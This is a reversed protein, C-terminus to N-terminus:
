LRKRLYLHMTAISKADVVDGADIRELSHRVLLRGGRLFYYFLGLGLVALIPLLAASLWTALPARLGEYYIARDTLVLEQLKGNAFAKLREIVKEDSSITIAM